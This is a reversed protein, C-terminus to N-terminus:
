LMLKWQNAFQETLQNILSTPIHNDRLYTLKAYKDAIKKGQREKALLLNTLFTKGTGGPADLFLNNEQSRNIENTVEGHQQTLLPENEDIFDALEETSYAKERVMKQALDQGEDHVPELLGFTFISVGGMAQEYNDKDLWAQNFIAGWHNDVEIDQGWM